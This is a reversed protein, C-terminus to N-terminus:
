LYDPQKRRIREIRLRDRDGNRASRLQWAQVFALGAIYSYGSVYLLVWFSVWWVGAWLCYVLLGLAYIALTLEAWVIPNRPLAYASEQWGAPPDAVPGSAQNAPRDIVAFKPTRKFESQVGRVAEYVAKTNNLSLGTGLAMLAGLHFPRRWLSEGQAQLATLYMLPPGIAVLALLPALHLLPSHSFSIPLLLFLNIIMLPHVLYNTLHLSSLVKRWLPEPSRWLRGWLKIATQISGKAWRFQQRKFADVQVPLEAPAVVDPRYDIRWGALQARYSLDLDETLTDGEWGGVDDMCARRWVGATGNFNLFAGIASRVRQEVVFHGDIGLAQARTFQSTNRNVHGWRAQVCGVDPDDFSPITRQLFDPEPMFDADFIAVFEGQASALGAQLAGAKYGQRDARRVHEIWCGNAILHEGNVIRQQNDSKLRAAAAVIQTTDDTSDDLVQIQLRDAPWDLRAVTEILRVAVHRENYVPLQVTVIPWDYPTERDPTAQPSESAGDSGAKRRRLRWYQGTHFISNLGYAALLIASLLYLLEFFIM